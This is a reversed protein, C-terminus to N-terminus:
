TQQTLESIIEELQLNKLKEKALELKSELKLKELHALASTLADQLYSQHVNHDEFGKRKRYEILWNEKYVAKSEDNRTHTMSKRPPKFISDEINTQELWNMTSKQSPCLREIFNKPSSSSFLSSPLIHDEVNMRELYKEIENAEQRLRIMEDTLERRIDIGIDVQILDEAMTEISTSYSIGSACRSLSNPRQDYNQEDSSITSKASM